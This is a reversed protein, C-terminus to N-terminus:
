VAVGHEIQGILDIVAQAGAATTLLEAPTKNGLGWAPKRLWRMTKVWDGENLSSAADLVQALWYVRASQDQSLLAATKAKRSLTTRDIGAVMCITKTDTGLMEAIKTVTQPSFGAMIYNHAELPKRPLSLLALVGKSATEIEPHYATYSM